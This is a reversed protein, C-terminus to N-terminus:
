LTSTQQNSNSGCSLTFSFPIDSSAPTDGSMTDGLSKNVIVSGDRNTFRYEIKQIIEGDPISFFSSPWITTSYSHTFTDSRVMLTEGDRKSVKYVGGEDTYATAEFYIEDCHMLDNEYADGSFTFTILDDQLARSPEVSNFRLKTYDTTEGSAGYISFPDSYEVKFRDTDQSLGDELYNVFFGFCTTLNDSGVNCKITIEYNPKSGNFAWVPVDAQWAVWEMDNLRNPGIGFREMLAESWTYGQMNKPSVNEAIPSMSQEEAADLLVNAHYSVSVNNRIDMSTPALMAFVFVDAEDRDGKIDMHGKVKFVATKNVEIRPAESGDAQEQNVDVSDIFVCAALLAICAIVAVASLYKYIKKM